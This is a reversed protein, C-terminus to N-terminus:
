PHPLGFQHAVAIFDPAHPHRLTPAGGNDGARVLQCTRLGADLAADLEEEIDSLFLMSQPQMGTNAIIHRYSDAERKGGIRTDFFGGFLLSLDGQDSYSFLLQQAEVSGSSYVFLNLGAEHWARLTQAADPHVQAQLAGSRYGERWIMGQLAKLPTIKADEDMWGLLTELAPRGPYQTEIDALIAAVAEDDSYAALFGAINAKAYPFLVQHVFAIPTTTGEIDTLIAKPPNM